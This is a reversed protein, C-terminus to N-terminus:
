QVKAVSRMRDRQAAPSSCKDRTVKKTPLFLELLDETATGMSGDLRRHVLRAAATACCVLNENPPWDVVGRFVEHLFVVDVSYSPAM